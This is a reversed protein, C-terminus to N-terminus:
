WDHGEVPRNGDRLAFSKWLRWGGSTHHWFRLKLSAYIQPWLVLLTFYLFIFSLLTLYPLLTRMATCMMFDTL